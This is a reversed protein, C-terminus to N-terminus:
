APEVRDGPPASRRKLAVHLRVTEPLEKVAQRPESPPAMETSDAEDKARSVDEADSQEAEVPANKQTRAQAAEARSVDADSQRQSQFEISSGGDAETPEDLAVAFLAEAQPEDRHAADDTDSPKQSNRPLPGAFQRQTPPATVRTTREFL